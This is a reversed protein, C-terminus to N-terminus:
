SIEGTEPDIKESLEFPQIGRPQLRAATRVNIGLAAGENGGGCVGARMRDPTHPADFLKTPTLRTKQNLKPM